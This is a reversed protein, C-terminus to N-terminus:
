PAPTERRVKMFFRCGMHEHAGVIFTDPGIQEITIEAEPLRKIRIEGIETPITDWIADTM